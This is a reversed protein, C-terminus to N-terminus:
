RLWYDGALPAEARCRLVVVTFATRQSLPAKHAQFLLTLSSSLLGDRAQPSPPLYRRGHGVDCSAPDILPDAGHLSIDNLYCSKISSFLYVIIIM